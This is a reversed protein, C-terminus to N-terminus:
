KVVSEIIKKHKEDIGYISFVQNNIQTEINLRKDYKSCKIMNQILNEINTQQAKSCIKIPIKDLNYKKVHPMSNSNTILFNMYYWQILKSNLIGLIYESSIEERDPIIGYLSQEIAYGTNDLAAIISKGTKRVIVKNNNKLKKIDKTGGKINVDVFEYYYNSLIRYKKINEGKIIKIQNKNKRIKTILSKIGIFGTFTICLNGLKISNDEIISKIYENVPELDYSFELNPNKMYDIQNVFYSRINNIEITCKNDPTYSNEAIFIMTDTNINPFKIKFGLRIINYNRLIYKRLNVYQLNNAFRDPIIFGIRGKLSVVEFSRKIFYEYLNPLYRGGQYEKMYYDILDKKINNRFRRSLSVWPPNGIVYDYKRRWFKNIRFSNNINFCKDLKILSNCCVINNDLNMRTKSVLTLNYITLEVAKPDIDAGYICNKLIHYELNCINWYENGYVIKQGFSTDIVYPRNSFKLRLKELSISFKSFLFKYTGILFYGCGCAPDLIKVFPNKLVDLNGMTYKLIYDIIFPPTYFAGKIKRGKKDLSNEYEYGLLDVDDIDM